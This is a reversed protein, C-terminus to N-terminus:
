EGRLLRGSSLLISPHIRKVFGVRSAQTLLNRRISRECIGSKCRGRVVFLPTDTTDKNRPGLYDVLATTLEKSLSVCHQPEGPIKLTACSGDFVFNSPELKTIDTASIGCYFILSFIILDRNKGSWQGRTELTMFLEKIEDVSPYEDPCLVLERREQRCPFKESIDIDLRNSAFLWYYFLCVV